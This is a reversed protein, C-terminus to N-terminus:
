MAAVQAAAGSMGNAAMAAPIARRNPEFWNSRYSGSAWGKQSTAALLSAAAPIPRLQKSRMPSPKKGIAASHSVSRSTTKCLQISWVSALSPTSLFNTLTKEWNELNREKRYFEALERVSAVSPLASISKEWCRVAAVKDNQKEQQQALVRLLTADDGATREWAVLDEPTSSPTLSALLRTGIPSGPAIARAENAYALASEIMVGVKGGGAPYVFEIIGPLTFNRGAQEALQTGSSRTSSEMLYDTRAFMPFMNMRPDRIPTKGFVEEHLNPDRVRSKAFLEIYKAFRHNKILPHVADVLPQLPTETANTAVVMFNAVQVFQEEELLTALASWSADGELKQRSRERLKEALQGPLPSFPDNPEPDNLQKLVEAQKAKDAPALALIGAPVGPLQALSLPLFHAFASPAASAGMRVVGLQNGHHAMEDFAKYATPCNPGVEEAAKMMWAPYRAFNALDFQVYAAWPKLDKNDKGIQWAEGRDGSIYARVLKLLQPGVSPAAEHTPPLKDIRDLDAQANQFSGGLAWAYARNALAFSNDANTAALRQGYLWARATFVETASSWHHSTLTALNAYGRALVGLWEPTEGGAQIAQHAARVAGFQAVFDPALLLQNVKAISAVAEADSEGKKVLQEKKENKENRDKAAAQDKPSNGPERKEPHLGAIKLAEILEGRSDVELKPVADAYLKSTTADCDYTKEWIAKSAALDKGETFTNLRVHWKGDRNCRETLILHIV